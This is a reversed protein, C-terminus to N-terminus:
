RTMPDNFWQGLGKVLYLCRVSAHDAFQLRALVPQVRPLLIGLGALPPVQSRERRDLLRSLVLACHLEKLSLPLCVERRGM